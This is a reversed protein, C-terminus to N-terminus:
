YLKYLATPRVLMLCAPQVMQVLKEQSRETNNNNVYSSITDM